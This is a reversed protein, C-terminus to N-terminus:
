EQNAITNGREIRGVIGQGGRSRPDHIDTSLRGYLPRAAMSLDIPSVPDTSISMEQISIKGMFLKSSVCSCLQGATLVPSVNKGIPTQEPTTARVELRLSVNM